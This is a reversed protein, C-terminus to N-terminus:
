TFELDEIRKVLLEFRCCPKQPSKRTRSAADAELFRPCREILPRKVRIPLPGAAELAPRTWYSFVDWEVYQEVTKRLTGASVRQSLKVLRRMEERMEYENLAEDSCHEAAKRWEQFSPYAAPKSRKWQRECHEWYAENRISVIDRVAYYGVANMWDERWARGFIHDNIWRELYNWFSLPGGRDELSQAAVFRLFGPCRRDVVEALWEPFNGETGEIARVWLLYAEWKIYKERAELLQPWPIRTAAKEAM